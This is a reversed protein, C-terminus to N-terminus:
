LIVPKPMSLENALFFFIRSTYLGFAEQKIEAGSSAQNTFARLQSSLEGYAARSGVSLKGELELMALETKNLNDSVAADKKQVSLLTSNLSKEISTALPILEERKSQYQAVAESLRTTSEDLLQSVSKPQGRQWWYGGWGPLHQWWKAGFTDSNCGLSIFILSISFLKLIQKNM